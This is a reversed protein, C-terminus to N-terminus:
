GRGTSGFGGAGRTTENLTESLVFRGQVVPAVVMQAIREGHQITYPRDSLNILPVGVPGRYDSDITGPTNPLTIGHKLSLGSRPRVQIEYGQPIEVILGTPILVRHMPDITFGTARDEPRLNARIDAGASGPTEYAPLAIAPDAWDERLTKILVSM